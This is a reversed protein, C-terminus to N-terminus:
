LKDFLYFYLDQIFLKDRIMVMVFVFFFNFIKFIYFFKLDENWILEFM